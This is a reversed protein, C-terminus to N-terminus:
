SEVEVEVYTPSEIDVSVIAEVIRILRANIRYEIPTQLSLSEPLSFGHCRIKKQPPKIKSVIPVARIISIAPPMVNSMWPNVPTKAMRRM